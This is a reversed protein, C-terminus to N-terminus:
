TRLCRRRTQRSQQQRRPVAVTEAAAGVEAVEGRAVAARVAAARVAAARVAVVRVVAERVVVTWELELAASKSKCRSV